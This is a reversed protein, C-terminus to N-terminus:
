CLVPMPSFPSHIGVNELTVVAMAQLCFPKFVAVEMNRSVCVCTYLTPLNLESAASDSPYRTIACPHPSLTCLFKM